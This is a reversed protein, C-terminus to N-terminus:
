GRLARYVKEMTLPLERFRVGTARFLGNAVAAATPCTAPEGIGKAGFPGVGDTTEVVEVLVPPADPCTPLLYTHFNPNLVRGESCQVGEHLAYGIGTLAGGEVQGEFLIRNVVRGVDYVALLRDVRVRGTLRDVRVRAAQVGYTYTSYPNGQGNEDLATADTRFEAVVELPPGTEGGKGALLERMRRCVDVVARGVVVTVRTASAPGSELTQATDASVVRVTGWPVGLEECAIQALITNSGQGVDPVGVFLTFSGDVEQRLRCRGVDEVATRGNGYHFCGLGWATLEEGCGASAERALIERMRLLSAELGVGEPIAQGTITTLGPRLINRLRLEIPDLGLEHAVADMQSEHAFVVQPVGYGRMAGSVPNNTFVARGEVEVNPVYYPGVSHIIGRGVVARSEGTYAGADAVLDVKVGLLRGDGSVAHTYQMVYPHRKTSTQFCEERTYVVKVPRGTKAAALAALCACQIDPKGGFSGGVAAAVVRVREKPCDLVRAIEEQLPHVTKATVWVCVRGDPEPVAVAGHPELFAHDVLHTRYVNTVVLAAERLARQFDGRKIRGHYCLNGGEALQPAGPALAEEPSFVAPLQEYAVRVRAVGSEAAAPTEAVVLAVPEGVFRVKEGALVPQDRVGRSGVLNSGPVDRATLVAVVGPTALAEEVMVAAVRAHAHPSRVPRALLMGPFHLDAVYVAKGCAKDRADFREVSRGVVALPFQESM